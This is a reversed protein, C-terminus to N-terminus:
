GPGGIETAHGLWKLQGALETNRVTRGTAYLLTLSTFIGLTGLTVIFPPLRVAHGAIRQFGPLGGVVIGILLAGM